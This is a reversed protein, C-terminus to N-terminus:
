QCKVFTFSMLTHRWDSFTFHSPKEFYKAVLSGCACMPKSTTKSRYVNKSLTSPPSPPCLKKWVPKIGFRDSVTAMLRGEPLKIERASKQSFKMRVSLLQALEYHVIWMPCANMQIFRWTSIKWPIFFKIWDLSKICSVMKVLVCM